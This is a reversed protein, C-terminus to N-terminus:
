CVLSPISIDCRPPKPKCIRVYEVGQADDRAKEWVTQPLRVDGVWERNGPQQYAEQCLADAVQNGERLIHDVQCAPFQGLLRIIEQQTAPPIRRETYEGRLLKVLMLDDGRAEWMADAWEQRKEKWADNNCADIGHGTEVEDFSVVEEFFEDEGWGQKESPLYFVLDAHMDLMELTSSVEPVQLGDPRSLSDTLINADHASGEWGALVYAFRMDFDVAALVNQRTYHKRGRFAAFM